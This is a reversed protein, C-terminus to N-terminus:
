GVATRFTARLVRRPLAEAAIAAGCQRGSTSASLRWRGRQAGGVYRDRGLRRIGGDGFAFALRYGREEGVDFARGLQHLVEIGFLRPCDHIWGELQHNFGDMTVVSVDNLGRAVTNESQEARPRVRPGDEARPRHRV